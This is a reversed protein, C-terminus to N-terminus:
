NGAAIVLELVREPTIQGNKASIDLESIMDITSALTARNYSECQKLYKKAIFDKLGLKDTIEGASLRMEALCCVDYLAQYHKAVSALIYQPAIKDKLLADLTEMAKDFKKEVVADTFDYIKADISLPSEALVLKEDIIGGPVLLALRDVENYLGFLEKGIGDYLLRIAQPTIGVGNANARRTLSSVIEPLTRLSCDFVAGCEEVIKFLANTKDAETEVFLAYSDEDLDKLFGFSEAVSKTASKFLGSNRIVAVTTQAFLFSNGLESEIDEASVKGEFRKVSERDVGIKKIVRGSFYSKLFEDPGYFLYVNKLADKEIMAAMASASLFPETKKAM